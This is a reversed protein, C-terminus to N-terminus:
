QKLVRQLVMSSNDEFAISLTNGGNSLQYTGSLPADWLPSFTITGASSSVVAHVAHQELTGGNSGGTIKYEGIEPILPDDLLTWSYTNSSKYYVEDTGDSWIGVIGNGPTGSVREMRDGDALLIEPSVTTDISFPYSNYLLMLGDNRIERRDEPVQDLQWIGLLLNDDIVM